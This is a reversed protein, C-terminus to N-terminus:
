PTTRSEPPDGNDPALTIPGEPYSQSAIHKPLPIGAAQLQLAFARPFVVSEDVIVSHADGGRYDQLFAPGSKGLVATTLGAARALEFLTPTQLLAKGQARYFEDLAQLIAHDESFVPQSFDVEAGKANHGKPGPQYLTNGYFGHVGSRAGTAFAAANMMTFTPYISHHDQFNVGRTDRLAALQPTIEPDISDPRLGDWVM